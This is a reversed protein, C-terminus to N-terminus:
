QLDLVGLDKAQKKATFSFRFTGPNWTLAGVDFYGEDGHNFYNVERRVYVEVPKKAAPLIFRFHEELPWGEPLKGGKKVAPTNGLTKERMETLPMVSALEIKHYTDGTFEYATYRYICGPGCDKGETIVLDAEGQGRFLVFENDAGEGGPVRYSLFGQEPKNIVLKVKGETNDSNAFAPSHAVFNQFYDKLGPKKTAFSKSNILAPVAPTSDTKNIFQEPEHACAALLLSIALFRLATKM